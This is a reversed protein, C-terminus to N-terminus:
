CDEPMSHPCGKPKTRINNEQWLTNCLTCHDADQLRQVILDTLCEIFKPHDNLADMVEFQQVGRALAHKRVEINIEHLTEIHDTVFAIPIVLLHRREEGALREVTELLSPKLWEIPGVKSQFCLTHPSDWKGLDIVRRVTEEIQLQYPDGKQIYRVPVGHASFVLDIDAPLIHPFRTLSKNINEVLAELLSSHNPYCCVFRTPINLGQKKAQRNWENMSSGTTAQSFQPYLPILIIQDFGGAKIESVIKDTMPHWYRMAIFVQARLGQQVLSKHLSIAQLRTLDLIPSKGGILQYNNRVLSSRKRSILKALPKRALFALPFDIIDPDMFLNYLFPEIAELSDPGGLQFLV